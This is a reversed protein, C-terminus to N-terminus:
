RCSSGGMDEYILLHQSVSLSNEQVGQMIEDIDYRVYRALSNDAAFYILVTKEAPTPIIIDSKQECSVLLALLCVLACLRSKM